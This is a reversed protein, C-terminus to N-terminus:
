DIKPSVLFACSRISDNSICGLVQRPEAKVVITSAVILFKSKLCELPYPVEEAVFVATLGKSEYCKRFRRCSVAKVWVSFPLLDNLASQAIKALSPVPLVLIRYM